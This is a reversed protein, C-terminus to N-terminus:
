GLPVVGFVRGSGVAFDLRDDFAGPVIRKKAIIRTKLARFPNALKMSPHPGSPWYVGYMLKGPDVANLYMTPCQAVVPSSAVMRIPPSLGLREAEDVAQRFRDFQWNLYDPDSTPDYVNLHAYIGEVRLHRTRKICAVLQPLDEPYVGNRHLGVDVKMFVKLSRTAAQAYADAYAADGVTAILDYDVYTRAAGPLNNAYVLIPKRVGHRRLDVAETLDAVAIGYASSEQVVQGVERLGFGYANCKLVAFMRTGQGIWRQIENLNHAIADLDVEFVNPRLLEAEYPVRQSMHM